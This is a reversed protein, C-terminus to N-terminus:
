EMTKALIALTGLLLVVYFPMLDSAAMAGVIWSAFCILSGFFLTSSFAQRDVPESGFSSFLKLL